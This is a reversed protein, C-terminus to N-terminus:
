EDAVLYLISCRGGLDGVAPPALNAPTECWCVLTGPPVNQSRCRSLLKRGHTLVQSATLVEGALTAITVTWRARRMNWAFFFDYDKGDLTTRHNVFPAFPDPTL